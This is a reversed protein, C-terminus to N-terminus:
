PTKLTKEVGTTNPLKQNDLSQKLLGLWRNKGLALEVNAIQAPTVENLAMHKKIFNHYLRFSENWEQATEDTKYGRRVKNFERFENHYREIMNNNAKKERGNKM